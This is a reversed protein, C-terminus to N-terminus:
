HVTRSARRRAPAPDTVPGWDRGLFRIPDGRIARLARQVNRSRSAASKLAALYRLLEKQRGPPLGEWGARAAASSDLGRQLEPPMPHVPGPRYEEDFRIELAVRDGVRLGAAARVGGNLYLYFRGEGVPMLNIRWRAEGAARVRFVVPMPRRWGPRLRHALEPPVVVYPNVGALELRAVLAVGGGRERPAASLPPTSAVAGTRSRPPRPPM